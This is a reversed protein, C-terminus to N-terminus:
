SKGCHKGLAKKKLTNFHTHISSLTLDIGVRFSFPFCMPCSVLLKKKKEWALKECLNINYHM